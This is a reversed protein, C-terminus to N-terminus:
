PAFTRPRFRTSDRSSVCWSRSTVPTNVTPGPLGARIGAFFYSVRAAGTGGVRQQIGEEDHDGALFLLVAACALGVVILGIILFRRVGM